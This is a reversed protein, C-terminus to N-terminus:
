RTQERNRKQADRNRKEQRRKLAARKRKREEQRQRDWERWVKRRLTDALRMCADSLPKYALCEERDGPTLDPDHPVCNLLHRLEFADKVFGCILKEHARTM